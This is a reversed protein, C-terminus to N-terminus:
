LEGFERGDDLMVGLPQNNRIVELKGDIMKLSQKHNLVVMKGILLRDIYRNDLPLCVSRIADRVQQRRNEWDTSNCNSVCTRPPRHGSNQMLGGQPNISDQQNKKCVEGRKIVWRKLRTKVFEITSFQNSVGDIKRRIEGYKNPESEAYHLKFAVDKRNALPGLKNMRLMFAAYDGLDACIRAEEMLDDACDGENLRRLERWVGIYKDGFFQFQRIGWLSAWARAKNANDKLSMNPDEDSMEGKTAFGNINKSIYKAIYGTATGKRKDCREVKCRHKKAGREDGDEELAKEKFIREFEVADEERVYALIHWHPTGDQHPEAVRMGYFGIEKKTWQARMQGWVKNLYDQTQRPSSGNWKKNNRGTVLTAHYKSPATLTLFLAIHGTEDSWDELAGLRNMMELRRIAPNASTKLYMELLEVQESPDNVNEIIMKKFFDLNQNRQFLWANLGHQSIYSSSFRSVEGYAIAIHEVMRKHVKKMTLLWYAESAVKNLAIDVQEGKLKKSKSFFAWYPLPFGIDVCFQGCKAYLDVFHQNIEKPSLCDGTTLQAAISNIYNKQYEAFSKALEYAIKKLQKETLLYFPLSTMENQKKTYHKFNTTMGVFEFHDRTAEVEPEVYAPANVVPEDKVQRAIDNKIDELWLPEKGQFALVWSVNCRYQTFVGKLREGFTERLWINAHRRQRNGFKFGISGDDEVSHYERLYLKRVNDRQAERPFFAIFEEIKQYDDPVTDFLALQYDTRAKSRLPNEIQVYPSHQFFPARAAKEAEALDREQEWAMM